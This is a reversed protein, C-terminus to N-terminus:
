EVSLVTVEERSEISDDQVLGFISPIDKPSEHHLNGAAKGYNEVSLEKRERLIGLIGTAETLHGKLDCLAGRSATEIQGKGSVVGIGMRGIRGSRMILVVDNFDVCIFNRQQSLQTMITVLHRALAEFRTPAAPHGQDEACQKRDSLLFVTDLGGEVSTVDDALRQNEVCESTVGIMLASELKGRGYLAKAFARIIQAEAAHLTGWVLFVLDEQALKDILDSLSEGGGGEPPSIVHLTVKLPANSLAKLIEAGQQGIGVVSVHLDKTPLITPINAISSSRVSIENTM